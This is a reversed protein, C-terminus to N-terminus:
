GLKQECEDRRACGLCRGVHEHDRDAGGAAVADHIKAITARLYGRVDDDWEVRFTGEPYTILGYAPPKGQDVELLRLYAAVQLVHGEYPKDPTRGSKVEVPILGDGAVRM